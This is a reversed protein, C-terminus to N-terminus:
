ATRLFIKALDYALAWGLPFGPDAGTQMPLDLPTAGPVRGAGGSGFEKMKM